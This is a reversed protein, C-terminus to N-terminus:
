PTQSETDGTARVEPATNKQRSTRLYHPSQELGYATKVKAAAKADFFAESSKQRAAIEEATGDRLTVKERPVFFV